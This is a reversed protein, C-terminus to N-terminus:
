PAVVVTHAVTHVRGGHRFQLFLRYRGASPLQATFRITGAARSEEPHLHLFALDGERLAVLHGDAGLYPEVRDVPRGARTIAYTLTAARGAALAPASLAAAYEGTVATRAPPPLAAPRFSGPVFLDTALTTPRGGVSMDAYARYVGAAPLRLPTSWSGDARLRPHLHQYGTLDRRVVILHMAREHVVDMARVTRGDTGAVRFRFEAARARPLRTARAELSLGDAASALGALPAAHEAGHAGVDDHGGHGGAGPERLAPLAAGAAAAAAFAVVLIAGFALLRRVPSM